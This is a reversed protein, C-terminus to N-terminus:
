ADGHPGANSTVCHWFRFDFPQGPGYLEVLNVRIVQTRYRRRVLSRDEFNRRLHFVGPGGYM